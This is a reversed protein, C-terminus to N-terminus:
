KGKASEGTAYKIVQVPELTVLGQGVMQDIHPFLMDFREKSDVIEIVIPLDDTLWLIKATHLRRHSGFGIPRHLVTAGAM